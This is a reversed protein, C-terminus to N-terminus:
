KSQKTIRLYPLHFFCCLFFNFFAFFVLNTDALKIKLQSSTGTCRRIMIMDFITISCVSHVFALGYFVDLISFYAFHFLFSFFFPCSSIWRFSFCCPFPFFFARAVHKNEVLKRKTKSKKKIQHNHLVSLLVYNEDEKARTRASTSFTHQTSRQRVASKNADRQTHEVRIPAWVNTWTLWM